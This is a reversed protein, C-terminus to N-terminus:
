RRKKKSEKDTKNKMISIVISTALVGIIFFLSIMSDIKYIDTLLMKVGVYFLILAVGYKLYAFLNALGALAFYLSRLGMVALINSTIVIFPDRTVALIAPISDIAFILDASEILLLTVLLNTIYYKGNKKLIFSKGEYVEIVNFRKYLFRVLFNKELKIDNEGSTSIMKYAAYFLFFGFIYIIFHFREILAVGAMIFVIRMIIASLIGWKLIHPQNADKIKMLDFIMLFVFLNDVSLSEEILYGTIYDVAKSQGNEMFFYILVGFLIATGVWIGSWFLSTKLRIKEDRHETAYIDVIFMTLAIVVFVIWFYHEPIM